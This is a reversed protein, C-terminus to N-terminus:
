KAIFYNGYLSFLIALILMYNLLEKGRRGKSGLLFYAVPVAMGFTLLPFYFQYEGIKFLVVLIFFIINGFIFLNIRRTKINNKTFNITTKFMGAVVIAGVIFLILYTQLPFGLKFNIAFTFSPLNYKSGAIFLLSWLMLAPLTYGSILALIDKLNINKFIITALILFLIGTYLVPFFLSACGYFLATYFLTVSTREMGYMRFMAMLSFLIFFNVLMAPNLYLNEPFISNLLIFCYAPMYSHTYIVDHDICIKNFILSQIFVLLLGSLISVYFNQATFSFVGQLLSSVATPKLDAGNILFPLRLLLAIFFVFLATFPRINQFLRLL